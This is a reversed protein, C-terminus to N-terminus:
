TMCMSEGYRKMPSPELRMPMALRMREWAAVAGSHDVVRMQPKNYKNMERQIRDM